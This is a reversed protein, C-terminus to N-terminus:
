RHTDYFFVVRPYAPNASFGKFTKNAVFVANTDLAFVAPAEEVLIQQAEIYTTEAAERDTATQENAKTILQDYKASSWYSLNFYPEDETHFLNYMYSFPDTYDPWWYTTFIDQRKDPNTSKGLEWMSEWPMGRIELEIGLKALESKYLEACKKEVEDGSLYTLLLKFGGDPYGGKALLEKAKEPDFTYQLLQDGHGWLTAPIAGRSQKAFGGAAYKVCNEYPFAYSLAQRIYKNDLPKAKTDFCFYLQNYSPSDYVQVNPNGDLAKIDEAPLDMTVDCEGQEVLQRKTATESVKKILVKDFQEPKWGGWYDSFATLVVEQGMKYSELMYPGTGAEHGETFWSKPNATAAKPSVVFAAYGSSAILDIPASYKTTIVVTDADAAEVSEVADWIFAGGQGLEMTRDISFKVAEADMVSGDHFKVGERLHFTWTKGDDSAEWSTALVPVIKKAATDYRVLTEYVNNLTIIGDSYEVAPDWDTVPTSTYAYIAVDKSSEDGKKDSGSSGCGTIVAAVVFFWAVGVCGLIRLKGWRSM